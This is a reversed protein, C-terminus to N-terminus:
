RGTRIGFRNQILATHKIGRNEEEEEERRDSNEGEYGMQRKKPRGRRKHGEVGIGLVKRAVNEENRWFFFFSVTNM